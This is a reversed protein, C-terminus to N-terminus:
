VSGKNLSPWLIVRPDRERLARAEWCGPEPKRPTKRHRTDGHCHSSLLLSAAASSNHGQPGHQYGTGLCEVQKRREGMFGRDWPSCPCHISPAPSTGAM